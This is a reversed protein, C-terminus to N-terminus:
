LGFAGRLQEIVAQIQDPNEEATGVLAELATQDLASMDSNKIADRIALPDFGDATLAQSLVEMPDGAPADHELNAAAAEESIEGSETVAGNEAGEGVAEELANQVENTAGEVAGATGEAAEMAGETAGEM